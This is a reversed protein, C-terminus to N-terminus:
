NLPSITDPLDLLDLSNLLLSWAEEVEPNKPDSERLNALENVTDFWLLSEVYVLYREQVGVMELNPTLLESSVRELWGNVTADGSRNNLNCVVSFVWRYAQNIELGSFKEPLSVSIIGPTNNLPFTEKYLINENADLLVFELQRGLQPKYPVYFHWTPHAATTKELYPLGTNESTPVLAILEQDTYPCRDRNAGGRGVTEPRQNRKPRSTFRRLLRRIPNQAHVPEAHFLLTAPTLSWLFCGVLVGNLLSKCSFLKM